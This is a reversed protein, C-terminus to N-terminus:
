FNGAIRYVLKSIQCCASRTNEQILDYVKLLCAYTILSKGYGTPLAVFVDKGSIFQLIADKQQRKLEEYVLSQAAQDIFDEITLYTM